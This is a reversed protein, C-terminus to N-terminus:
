GNELVLRTRKPLAAHEVALRREAEVVSKPKREVQRLVRQAGAAERDVEVPEVGRHLALPGLRPAGPRSRPFGRGFRDPVSQALADARGLKQAVLGLGRLADDARDELVPDLDRRELSALAAREDEVLRREVALGAALDAVDAFDARGAEAGFDGVRALLEAVEDNVVHGDDAAGRTRAERDLKGDIVLRARRRAGIMRRGMNQVFSQAHHEAIMHRLLARENRGLPQAEVDGM